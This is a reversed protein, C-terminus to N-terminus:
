KHILLHAERLRKTMEVRTGISVVGRMALLTNEREFLILFCEAKTSLCYSANRQIEHEIHTLYAALKLMEEQAPVIYACSSRAYNMPLISAEWAESAPEIGTAREM